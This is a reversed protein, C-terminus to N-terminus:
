TMCASSSHWVGIRQREFRSSFGILRGDRRDVAVLAGGSRLAEDFYGRFVKDQYRDKAPHQEWILPDAAAAFLEAFDEARLPRLTLLEGELVPQLDFPM